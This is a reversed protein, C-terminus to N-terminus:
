RDRIIVCGNRHWPLESAVVEWTTNDMPTKSRQLYVTQQGPGPAFYFVYWYGNFVFARPDEAGAGFSTQTPMVDGVTGTAADAYAMLIHDDGGGYADPCGSVRLFIMSQNLAGPVLSADLFAPNFNFQCPSQGANGVHSLAPVAGKDAVTVTYTIAQAAAALGAFVAVRAAAM